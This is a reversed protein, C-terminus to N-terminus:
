KRPTDGPRTSMLHITGLPTQQNVGQKDILSLLSEMRQRKSVCVCECVCVCVCECVYGCVCMGVCVCVCVWVCVCITFLNPHVDNILVYVTHIYM